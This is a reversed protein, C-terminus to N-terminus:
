SRLTKLSRMKRSLQKRQVNVIEYENDEQGVNNRDFFRNEIDENGEILQVLNQYIREQCLDKQSNKFYNECFEDYIKFDETWIDRQNELQNMPVIKFNPPTSTVLPHQHFTDKSSRGSKQKRKYIKNISRKILNLILNNKM